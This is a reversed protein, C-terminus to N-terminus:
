IDKEYIPQHLKILRFKDEVIHYDNKKVEKRPTSGKSEASM